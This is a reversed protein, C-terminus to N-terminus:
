YKRTTIWGRPNRALMQALKQEVIARIDQVATAKRQVKKAFEDRLKELDITSLDFTLGDDQDEGPEAARIAENVIRHM